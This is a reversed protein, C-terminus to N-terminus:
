EAYIVIARLQTYTSYVVVRASSNLRYLYKDLETDKVKEMPSGMSHIVFVSAGDLSYTQTKDFNNIDNGVSAFANGPSVVKIYNGQRETIVTKIFYHRANGAYNSNYDGTSNYVREASTYNLENSADFRLEPYVLNNKYNLEYTIIDGRSLGNVDEVNEAILEIVNGSMDYGIVINIIENDANVTTKVKDVFLTNDSEERIAEDVYIVVCKALGSFDTDYADFNLKANNNYKVTSVYYKDYNYIDTKPAHFVKTRSNDLLIGINDGIGFRGTRVSRYQTVNDAVKTLNEKTERSPDSYSTDIADVKGEGNLKFKVLQPKFTLQGSMIADYAESLHKYTKGDIKIKEASEYSKFGTVDKVFRFRIYEDFDVYTPKILFAYSWAGDEDLNVAAVREDSDLYFTGVVGLEIPKVNMASNSLATLYSQAVAFTDGDITVYTTGDEVYKNEVPGIVPDNVVTIKVAEGDLSKYVSLVDWAKLQSLELNEGYMGTIKVYDVDELDLHKGYLDLIVNDAINKVIYNEFEDIIVVDAKSDNNNDIFIMRGTSPKLTDITFSPYSKSNYIVDAETDVKVKKISGSDNTYVITDWDYEPSDVYLSTSKVEMINNATTAFLAVVENDVGGEKWYAWVDMGLMDEGKGSKDLYEVNNIRVIDEAAVARTNNIDTLRNGTIIGRVKHIDFTETLLTKGNEISYTGDFNPILVEAELANYCLAILMGFKLEDGPLASIGKTIGIDNAIEVCDSLTGGKRIVEIEYGMTYIVMKVAQEFTAIDNPYFNEAAAIVNRDRLMTIASAYQTDETVDSFYEVFSEHEGLNGLGAIIGALEGRSVKRESDYAVEDENLINLTYLLENAFEPRADSGDEWAFVTASTIIIIMAMLMATLKKYM